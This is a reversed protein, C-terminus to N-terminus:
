WHDGPFSEVNVHPFGAVLDQELRPDAFPDDEVTTDKGSASVTGNRFPTVADATEVSPTAGEASQDVQSRSPRAGRELSPAPSVM